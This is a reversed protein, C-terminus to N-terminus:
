TARVIVRQVRSNCPVDRKRLRSGDGRAFDRPIGSIQGFIAIIWVVSGLTIGLVLWKVCNKGISNVVSGRAMVCVSVVFGIVLVCEELRLCCSIMAKKNLYLGNVYFLKCITFLMAVMSLPPRM